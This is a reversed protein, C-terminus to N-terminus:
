PFGPPKQRPNAYSKMKDRVWDEKEAKLADRVMDRGADGAFASLASAATLRIQPDPDATLVEGLVKTAKDPFARAFGNIASHRLEGDQDRLEALLVQEAREDPVLSMAELARQRIAPTIDPRRGIVILSSVPDKSAERLQEAKPLGDYAMLLQWVSFLETLPLSEICGDKDMPKAALDGEPALEASRGEIPRPKRQMEKPGGCAMLGMALAAALALRPISM